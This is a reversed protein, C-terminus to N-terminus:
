RYFDTPNSGPGSAYGQQPAKPPQYAQYAPQLAPSPAKPATHMPPPAGMGMGVGQVQGQGFPQQGGHYSERHEGRQPPM